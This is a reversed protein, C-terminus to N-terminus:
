PSSPASAGRSTLPAEGRYRFIRYTLNPETGDFRAVLRYRARDELRALVDPHRLRNMGPYGYVVYLPRAERASQRQLADVEALSDVLQVGPDYVRLVDGGLGLGARLARGEVTLHRAVERLPAFPRTLLVATQPAVLLQYAVLGAALGLAVWASRARRPVGPARELLTALGLALGAVVPVLAYIVFRDYFYFRQAHTVGMALAAAALVGPLVFRGARPRALLRLLGLAALLPMAGYVLPGLWPRVPALTALSPFAEPPDAEPATRRPMGTALRSWVDQVVGVNVASTQRRNDDWYLAQAVNPAMVQLVLLAALLNAVAARMALTIRDRPPARRGLAAVVGLAGLPVVLYVTVPQSWLLLLQAAGFALWPRWGGGRLARTLSLCAVLTFLVVLGYARAEAGYRVHWPHLALLFAAAVGAGPFGWQWLAVGLLVVSAVSAVLAPLRFALHSFGHADGGSVARWADVSARAMVNYLVHNTPKRYDWFPRSWPPRAVEVAAPADGAPAAEGVVVRRLSWAEDWWVSRSALPARLGLALLAALLLLTWFLRGVRPIAEPPPLPALPRAWLGASALLIGCVIANAVAVWFLAAVVTDFLPRGSPSGFGPGSALTWPAPLVVLGVLLVALATALLRRATSPGGRGLWRNLTDM